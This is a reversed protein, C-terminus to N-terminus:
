FKTENQKQEINLEKAQKWLKVNYQVPLFGKLYKLNNAKIIEIYINFNTLNQKEINTRIFLKNLSYKTYSM